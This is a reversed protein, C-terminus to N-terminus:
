IEFAQAWTSRLEQVISVAEDVEGRRICRKCYDYLYYLDVALPGAEFNLGAVLENLARQALRLDNKKCGLIVVDYLKHIVEVPTLNQIQEKQYTSVAQYAQTTLGNM